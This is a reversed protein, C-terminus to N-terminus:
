NTNPLKMNELKEETGGYMHQSLVKFYALVAEKLMRM